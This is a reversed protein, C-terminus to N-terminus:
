ENLRARTPGNPRQNDAACVVRRIPDDPELTVWDVDIPRGEADVELAQGVHARRPTACDYLQQTSVTPYWRTVLHVLALAMDEVEPHHRVQNLDVAAFRDVKPVVYTWPQLMNRSTHREAVVVHDPLEAATRDAWAYDSWIHFGLMGAGATAPLVWGPVPRGLARFAIFVLCAAGVGVMLTGILTWIM